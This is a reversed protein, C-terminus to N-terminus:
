LKVASGDCVVTMYSHDLDRPHDYLKRGCDLCFVDGGARGYDIRAVGQSQCLLVETLRSTAVQRREIAHIFCYGKWWYGGEGDPVSDAMYVPEPCNCCTLPIECPKM